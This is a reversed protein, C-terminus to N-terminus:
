AGGRAGGVEAHAVKKDLLEAERVADYPVVQRLTIHRPVTVGRGAVEAQAHL